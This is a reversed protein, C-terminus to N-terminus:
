REAGDEGSKLACWHVAFDPGCGSGPGKTTAGTRRTLVSDVDEATKRRREHIARRNRPDGFRGNLWPVGTTSRPGSTSEVDVPHDVYSMHTKISENIACISHNEEILGAGCQQSTAVLGGAISSEDGICSRGQNKRRIYRGAVLSIRCM